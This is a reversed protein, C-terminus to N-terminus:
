FIALQAPNYRSFDGYPKTSLFVTMNDITFGHSRLRRYVSLNGGPTFTRILDVRLNECRRVSETLIDPLYKPNMTGAPGILSNKYLVSYGAWKSGNFFQYITYERASAFFSLDVLRSYGRIRRELRNITLISKNSNDEVMTLGTPRIRKIREAPLRMELIPCTPMMGFSAYLGLATENFPITCLAFSDAKPKGYNICRRLIQRGVGGAQHRPDIFLYALYWQRGRVLALGFGIMRNGSYAAWCGKPDTDYLHGTLPPVGTVSLDHPRRGSKLLLDNFSSNILKQAKLLEGREPHRFTIKKV